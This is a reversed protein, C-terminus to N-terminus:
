RGGGIGRRLRRRDSTRVLTVITQEGALVVTVGICREPVQVGANRANAAERHGLHWAVRGRGQQIPHGWALVFQVHEPDVRRQASRTHAHSSFDPM